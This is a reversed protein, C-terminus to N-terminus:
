LGLQIIVTWAKDRTCSSLVGVSLAYICVPFRGTYFGRVIGGLTKWSDNWDYLLSIVLRLGKTCAWCNVTQAVRQFQVYKWGMCAQLENTMIIIIINQCRCGVSQTVHTYKCYSNYIPCSYVKHISFTDCGIYLHTSKDNIVNDSIMEPSLKRLGTRAHHGCKQTYILLVPPTSPRFPLYVSPDRCTCVSAAHKRTLGVM